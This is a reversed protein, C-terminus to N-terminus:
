PLVRSLTGGPHRRIAGTLELEVLVHGIERAELGSTRVLDDLAVPTPGLLDLVLRGPDAAGSPRSSSAPELAFGNEHKAYGPAPLIEPWDLEDWMAETAPEGITERM